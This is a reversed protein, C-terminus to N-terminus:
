LNILMLFITAMKYEIDEISDASFKIQFNKLEYIVTDPRFAACM